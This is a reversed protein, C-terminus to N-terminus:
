QARKRVLDRCLRAQAKPCNDSANKVIRGWRDAPTEEGLHRIVFAKFRRDKAMLNAGVPFTQWHEALIMSVSDSFGGAIAGDDCHAYKRFADYLAEWTRLEGALYHASQAESKGCERADAPGSLVAALVCLGLISRTPM